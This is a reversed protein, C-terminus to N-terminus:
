SRIVKRAHDLYRRIAGSASDRDAYRPGRSSRASLHEHIAVAARRGSGVADIVPKVGAVLDGATFLNRHGPFPGADVLFGAFAATEGDSGDPLNSPDAEEGVAVLVAAADMARDGGPVPEYEARGGRFRGTPRQRTYTVGRVSDTGIVDVIAVETVIRVGDAEATEIEAAPAPMEARSRGYLVAVGSVGSRVACRAAYLATRGGGAVVAPGGIVPAGALNFDKIFRSAPVVGALRDGPVGLQRRRYMGTALLVADFGAELDALSFDRGIVSGLRLGVGLRVIRDLDRHLYRRPLGFEPVGFALRGGLGPMAEFVSVGYGLRALDHAASMGAPGGGVIAVSEKRRRTPAAIPPLEPLLDASSKPRPSGARGRPAEGSPAEGSPAEGSPANGCPASCIWACVSPFPNVEAAVAGAEDLRGQAVLELRRGVDTGAPCPGPARKWESEVQVRFVM